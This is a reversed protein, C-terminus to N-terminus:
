VPRVASRVTLFGVAAIVGTTSCCFPLVRRTAVRRTKVLHANGGSFEAARYSVNPNSRNEFALGIFKRM